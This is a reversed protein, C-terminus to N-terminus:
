DQWKDIWVHAPRQRCSRCRLRKKSGRITMKGKVKGDSLLTIPLLERDRGCICHIHVVECPGLDAITKEARM